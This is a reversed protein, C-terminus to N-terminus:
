RKTTIVEDVVCVLDHAASPVDFTQIAKQMKQYCNSDNLVTMIEKKLKGNQLESEPIMLIGGTEAVIEANLGQHGDAFPYPILVAPLKLAALEFITGAGARGIVFDAEAYLKDIDDAFPLVKNVMKLENYRIKAEALGQFGTIHTVAINEKEEISLSSFFQLVARNVAQSGQSGGFILIQKPSKKVLTESANKKVILRFENRVPYGIYKVKKHALIGLTERFSTAIKRAFFASLRNAKGMLRNQEHITVPIGLLWAALVAPFAGYSGFSVLAHPRLGQIFAFTAIFSKLYSFPFLFFQASLMRPFPRISILKTKFNTLYRCADFPSEKKPLLFYIESEPHVKRYAKAFSVSPFFHGGTFGTTILIKSSFNCSM